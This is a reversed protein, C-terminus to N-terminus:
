FKGTFALGANHPGAQISVHSAEKHGAYIFYAGVAMAVGGGIILGTGAARFGDANYQLANARQLDYANPCTGNPCL